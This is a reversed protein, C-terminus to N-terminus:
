PDFRLTRLETDPASRSEKYLVTIQKGILQAIVSVAVQSAQSPQGGTTSWQGQRYLKIGTQDWINQGTAMMKLMLRIFAKAEPECGRWDLWAILRQDDEKLVYDRMLNLDLRHCFKECFEEYELRFAPNEYGAAVAIIGDSSGTSFKAAVVPNLERDNMEDPTTPVHPAPPKKQRRFPKLRQLIGRM